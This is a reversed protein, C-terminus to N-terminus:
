LISQTAASPQRRLLELLNGLSLLHAYILGLDGSELWAKLTAEPLARLRSEDVIWFGRLDIRHGDASDAKAGSEILLGAADVRRMFAHTLQSQQEFAHLHQSVRLLLPSPEGSTEFLDSGESRQL